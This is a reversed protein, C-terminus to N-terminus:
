INTGLFACINVKCKFNNNKSKYRMIGALNIYNYNM